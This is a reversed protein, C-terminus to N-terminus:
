SVNKIVVRNGSIIPQAWTSSHAVTYRKVPQFSTQSSKVVILEANDNLFSLVDSAKLIPTNSPALEELPLPASQQPTHVWLRYQL